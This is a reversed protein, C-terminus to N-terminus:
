GRGVRIRIYRAGGGDALAAALLAGAETSVHIAPSSETMADETPGLSLNPAATPRLPNLRRRM